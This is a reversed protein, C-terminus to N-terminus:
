RPCRGYVMLSLEDAQEPSVLTLDPMCEIIAERCSHHMSEEADPDLARARASAIRGVYSQYRPDPTPM